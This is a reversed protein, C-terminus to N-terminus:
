LLGVMNSLGGDQRDRGATPAIPVPATAPAISKAAAGDANASRGGLQVAPSAACTFAFTEAPSPQSVRESVRPHVVEKSAKLALRTVLDPGLHLVVSRGIRLLLGFELGDALRQGVQPVAAAGTGVDGRRLRRDPLKTM